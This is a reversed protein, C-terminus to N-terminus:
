REDPELLDIIIVRKGQDEEKEKTNQLYREYEEALYAELRLFLRNEDNKPDFYPWKVSM